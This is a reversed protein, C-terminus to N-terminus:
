TPLDPHPTARLMSYVIFGVAGKRLTQMGKYRVSGKRACHRPDTSKCSNSSKSTTITLSALSPTSACPLLAPFIILATCFSHAALRLVSPSLGTRTRKISFLSFRPSKSTRRVRTVSAFPM